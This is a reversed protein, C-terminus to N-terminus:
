MRINCTYAPLTIILNHCVVPRLLTKLFVRGDHNCQTRKGISSKLCATSVSFLIRVLSFLYVAQPDIMM